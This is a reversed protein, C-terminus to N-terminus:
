PMWFIKSTMNSISGQANVNTSNNNYESLPYLLRYPIHTASTGPYISVPVDVPIHLRRYNNWSEIPDIMNLSAWEQTIITTIKDASTTYNVRADNQAYYAAAATAYSPVALLRFSESIASRFLSDATLPGAIYGRQVAEAQLFLSEFAPMIPAGQTASAIIGPGVASIVTNHETGDQSGFARGRVVGATNPAYFRTLRPDNTSTYFNVAYSNARNYSNGGTPSTGNTAFGVNQWMPNQQNVAANSYGPNVTADLGAGMFDSNKLGSLESTIFAPGDSVQTMNMLIKLKVSNAFATWSAMKGAFMVDYKGPNDATAANANKILAVASDLQGVISKYVSEADDYKPFYNAKNGNLADSYPIKNYLDVLRQVQFATMIKSIALYYEEGAVRSQDAINKLNELTIYVNDWNQTAFSTNTNYTAETGYGGYDGSFAWYGMYRNAFDPFGANYTQNAINALAASLSFQASVSLPVNPNVNNIDFTGKKCGAAVLLMLPLAVLYNYSKKLM